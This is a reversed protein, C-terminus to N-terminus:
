TFNYVIYVYQEMKIVWTVLNSELTFSIQVM